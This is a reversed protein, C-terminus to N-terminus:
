QPVDINRTNVVKDDCWTEEHEGDTRERLRTADNQM